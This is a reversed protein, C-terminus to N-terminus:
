SYRRPSFDLVCLNGGAWEVVARHGDAFRVHYPKEKRSPFPRRVKARKSRPPLSIQRSDTAILVRDEKDKCSLSVWRPCNAEIHSVADADVAAVLSSSFPIGHDGDLALLRGAFPNLALLHPKCDTQVDVFDINTTAFQGNSQYSFTDVKILSRYSRHSIISFATRNPSLRVYSPGILLVRIRQRLSGDAGNILWITALAERFGSQTKFCLILEDKGAKLLELPHGFRHGKTDTMGYFCNTHAVETESEYLLEGSELAYARLMAPGTGYTVTGFYVRDEGVMIPIYKIDVDHRSHSWLQSGNDLRILTDQVGVAINNGNRPRQKHRVLLCGNSGLVIHKEQDHLEEHFSVADLKRVPHLSGDPRYSLDQWFVGENHEVWICYNGATTFATTQKYERVASPEAREIGKQAAALEKFYRASAEYKCRDSLDAVHLFHLRLGSSAMWQRVFVAWGRKVRECRAVDSVSLHGLIGIACEISLTQFPDPM